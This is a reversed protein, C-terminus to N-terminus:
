FMFRRDQKLKELSTGTDLGVHSQKVQSLPENVPTYDQVAQNTEKISNSLAQLEKIGRNPTYRLWGNIKELKAPNNALEYMVDAGNELGSIAHVLQPFQAHDFDGLVDDFDSYKAKGAELKSFYSDAVGQMKREHEEAAQKELLQKQEAEFQSRLDTLIQQRDDQSIMGGMSQVEGSKLKSLELKHRAELDRRVREEAELKERKVIRDLDEQSFGKTEQAPPTIVDTDVDTLSVDDSMFCGKKVILDGDRHRGTVTPAAWKHGMPHTNGLILHRTM